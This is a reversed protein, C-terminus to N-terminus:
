APAGGAALCLEALRAAADVNRLGRAAGAMELLRPRSSTLEELKSKLSDPTLDREALIEGAGARVMAEANKTQHDDTAAAFPVLLAGLGAAQLEAITMAGARCL